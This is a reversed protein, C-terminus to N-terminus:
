EHTTQLEQPQFAGAYQEAAPFTADSLKLIGDSQILASALSGLMPARSLFAWNLNNQAGIVLHSIGLNRLRAKASGPTSSKEFLFAVRPDWVMWVRVGIVSLESAIGANDTLVIGTRDLHGM